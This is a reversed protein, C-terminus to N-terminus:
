DQLSKLPTETDTVTPQTQSGAEEQVIISEQVSDEVAFQALTKDLFALKSSDMDNLRELIREKLLM